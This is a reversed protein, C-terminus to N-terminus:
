LQKRQFDVLKSMREPTMELTGNGIATELAEGELEGGPTGAGPEVFNQPPANINGVKAELEAIRDNAKKLEAQSNAHIEMEQRTKFSVLQTLPIGHKDAVQAAESVRQNQARVYAAAENGLQLYKLERQAMENAYQKAQEETYGANVLETVQAQAQERVQQLMEQQKYQALQQQLQDNQQQLAPDPAPAAVPEAVPEPAPEVPPAQPEVVPAEPAEAVPEVPVEPTPTPEAVPAVPQVILEDDAPTTTPETVTNETVM